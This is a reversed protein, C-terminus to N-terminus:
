LQKGDVNVTYHGIFILWDPDTGDEPVTEIFNMAHQVIPSITNAHCSNHTFLFFGCILTTLCLNFNKM